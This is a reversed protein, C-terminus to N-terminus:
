GSPSLRAPSGILGVLRNVTRSLSDVVVTPEVGPDPGPPPYEWRPLLRIVQAQPIRAVIRDVSAPDTIIMVPDGATLREEVPGRPTGYHHGGVRAWDLLEQRDCMRQFVEPSLFRYEAGDAEGQRRARTTVPVPLFIMPLRVRILEAVRRRAVGSPARLLTLRAAPRVVRRSDM